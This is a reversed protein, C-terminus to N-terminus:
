FNIYIKNFLRQFCLKYVTLVYLKNPIIDKLILIYIVYSRIYIDSFTELDIFIYM